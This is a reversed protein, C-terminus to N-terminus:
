DHNTIPPLLIVAKARILARYQKKTKNSVKSRNVIVKGDKLVQIESHSYNNPEPVHTATYFHVKDNLDTSIADPLREPIDSVRILAIGHDAHDFKVDWPKSYKSWNVSQNAAPIFDISAEIWQGNVYAESPVRFYLKHRPLFSSNVGRSGQIM